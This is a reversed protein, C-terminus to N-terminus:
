FDFPHFTIKLSILISVFGFILAYRYLLFRKCHTAATSTFDKGTVGFVSEHGDNIDATLECTENLMCPLEGSINEKETVQESILVTECSQGMRCPIPKAPTMPITETNVMTDFAGMFPFKENMNEKEAGQKSTLMSECNDESMGSIPNGPTLPIWNGDREMSVGSEMVVIM